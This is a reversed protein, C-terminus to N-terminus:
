DTAESSHLIEQLVRTFRSAARDLPKLLVHPEGRLARPGDSRLRITLAKLPYIPIFQIFQPRLVKEIVRPFLRAIFERCFQHLGLHRMARDGRIETCFCISSIVSRGKSPSLRPRGFFLGPIGTFITRRGRKGCNPRQCDYGWLYHRM